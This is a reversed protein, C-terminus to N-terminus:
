PRPPAAAITVTTSNSATRGRTDTVTVSATFTGAATYVHTTSPTTTTATAGDGFTWTASTIAQTALSFSTAQGAVQPTVFLTVTLPPPEPAPTPAPPPQPTPPSPLPPTLLTSSVEINAAQTHLITQSDSPTLTTRVTGSSDTTGDAPTVTGSSVSFTVVINPVFHGDATLVTATIDLQRDFRTSANIRISAPATSSPPSTPITTTPQTPAEYACAITVAALCCSYILKRM